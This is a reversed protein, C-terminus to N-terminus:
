GRVRSALACGALKYLVRAGVNADWEGEPGPAVECLDFSVVQVASSVADLLICVDRFSLGGPVPTGTHPCLSPDLGDIDFSIHIKPPLTEVIESVLDFWPTGRALRDALAVDTFARIRTPEAHIRQLENAGLDRYGVGVIRSIGKLELARNMISAHSSRFGLYADRLDAHADIHLIGIGPHRSAVADLLGFPSSHDGGLVAPICGEDFAANALEQVWEDRRAALADVESALQQLEEDDPEVGGAAIVKLARESAADNWEPLEVGSDVVAIGESWIPGFQLDHLDVQQSAEEVAAPGGATGRGYSATAEWPVPIVRVAPDSIEGLGFLGNGTGPGDPDFEGTM